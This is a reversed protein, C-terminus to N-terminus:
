EKAKSWNLHNHLFDLTGAGHIAHPGAFSEVAERDVVHLKSKAYIPARLTRSLWGTRSIQKECDVAGSIGTLQLSAM